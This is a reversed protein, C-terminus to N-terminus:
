TNTIQKIWKKNEIKSHDNEGNFANEFISWELILFLLFSFNFVIYRYINITGLLLLLVSEMESFLFLYFHVKYRGVTGGNWQRLKNCEFTVCYVGRMNILIEM